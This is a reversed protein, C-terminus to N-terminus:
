IFSICWTIDVIALYMGIIICCAYDYVYDYMTLGDGGYLSSLGELM